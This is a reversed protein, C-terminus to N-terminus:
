PAIGKGGKSFSGTVFRNPVLVGLFFTVEVCATVRSGNLVWHLKSYNKASQSWAGVGPLAPCINKEVTPPTGASGPLAPCLRASGPLCNERVVTNKEM